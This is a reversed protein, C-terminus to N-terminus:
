AISMQEELIAQRASDYRVGIQAQYEAEYAVLQQYRDHLEKIKAALMVRGLSGSGELETVCQQITVHMEPPLDHTADVLEGLMYDIARVLDTVGEDELTHNRATARMEDLSAREYAALPQADDFLLSYLEYSIRQNEERAAIRYQYENDDINLAQHQLLVLERPDIPAREDGFMFHSKGHVKEIHGKLQQRQPALMALWRVKTMGALRVDDGDLLNKLIGKSDLFDIIYEAGSERAINDKDHAGIVRTALSSDQAVADLIISKADQSSSAGEPTMENSLTILEEGDVLGQNVLLVAVDRPEVTVDALRLEILKAEVKEFFVDDPHFINLARKAIKCALYDVVREIFDPEHKDRLEERVSGIAELSQLVVREQRSRYELDEVFREQQTRAHAMSVGIEYEEKESRMDRAFRLYDEKRGGYSIPADPHHLIFHEAYVPILNHWIDHNFYLETEADIVSRVAPSDLSTIADDEMLIPYEINIARGVSDTGIFHVFGFSSWFGNHETASVAEVFPVYSGISNANLGETNPAYPMLSHHQGPIDNSVRLYNYDPTRLIRNSTLSGWILPQTKMLEKVDVTDPDLGMGRALVKLAKDISLLDDENQTLEGDVLDDMSRGEVLSKQMRKLYNKLALQKELLILIEEDPVEDGGRAEVETDIATILHALSTGTTDVYNLATRRLFRPTEVWEPHNLSLLDEVEAIKDERDVQPDCLKAYDIDLQLEDYLPGLRRATDTSDGERVSKILEPGMSRLVALEMEATLADRNDKRAVNLAKAALAAPESVGTNLSIVKIGRREFDLIIEERDRLYAKARASFIEPRDPDGDRSERSEVRQQALDPDAVCEVVLGPMLGLGGLCSILPEVESQKKPLGDLIFSGKSDAVEQLEDALLGLFFDARGVPEGLAFIEDLKQREFGNPDLRRSTEGLSIYSIQSTAQLECSLTTKGSGPPGLVVLRERGVELEPFESSGSSWASTTATDPLTYM